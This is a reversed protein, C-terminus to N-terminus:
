FNVSFSVAFTKLGHKLLNSFINEESGNESHRKRHKSRKKTSAVTASEEKKVHFFQCRTESWFAPQCLSKIDFASCLWQKDNKVVLPSNQLHSPSIITNYLKVQTSSPNRIWKAICDQVLSQQKLVSCTTERFFLCVYNTFIDVIYVNSITYVVNLGFSPM